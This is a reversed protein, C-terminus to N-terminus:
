GIIFNFLRNKNKTDNIPDNGCCRCFIGFTSLFWVVLAFIVHCSGSNICEINSRFLIMAGIVFWAIFIITNAIIIFPLIFILLINEKFFLILYIIAMSFNFILSFIGFGLLYQAVNLGMPDTNDCECPAVAGVIISPLTILCYFIYVMFFCIYICRRTNKYFDSELMPNILLTQENYHM